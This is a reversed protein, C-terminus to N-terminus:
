KNKISRIALIVFFLFYGAFFIGYAVMIIYAYLLDPLEDMFGCLDGLVYLIFLSYNGLQLPIGLINYRDSKIWGFFIIRIPKSIKVAPAEAYRDTVCLKSWYANFLWTAILIIIRLILPIKEMSIEGGLNSLPLLTQNAGNDM